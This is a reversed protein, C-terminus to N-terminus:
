VKKLYQLCVWGKTTLAWTKGPNLKLVEVITGQKYVQGITAYKTGAGKRINLASAIVKYKGTSTNVKNINIKKNVIAEAITKAIKDINKNYLKVDDKDDVFCIEILLSPAKTHKLFYLDKRVKIGRNKFGIASLKRCIRTAKDNAKSTKSYVLVETGTTTGNGRKDNAGSNFHISVDLDVSHANCKTVIKSLVNSASTGDDVTCDYVTHGDSKLYKIVLDKVKRAETSEKIIGVAGCAMKGDPNHGAHINIKM